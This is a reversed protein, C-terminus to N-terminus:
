IVPYHVEDGIDVAVLLWSKSREQEVNWSGVEWFIDVFFIIYRQYVLM